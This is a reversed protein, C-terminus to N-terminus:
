PVIFLGALCMENQTGWGPTVPDTLGRTDYDCTVRLKDGPGLVIPRDYFYYLQWGFDWRAVDGVCQDGTEEVLDARWTRGREHMHPFIGHIEVQDVGLDPLLWDALDATWTYKASAQGPEIAAPEGTFLTDIFLDLLMFFGEREVSGAIQLRVQSRDSEGTHDADGDHHHLNYHMQIVVRDDARLRVGTGEPYAVAGMGPAWTIPIQAVAVGEGAASYCPWGDRDPSDADLMEIVEGNTMGNGLHSPAALDVPMALVHHVLAPNGPTVDYGTLFVDKDFGPDVLFCRYEDHTSIPGGQAAPVFEPTHLDVGEDLRPPAAAVLDDRVTGEPAGAEAWKSITEIQEDTLARSGSFEGCSGDSTMLWPPMTRGAVAAASADAWASADAYTDLRFPAVGGESHCGVCSEFYIPAVHQWYSTEPEAPVEDEKCASLLALSTLSLLYARHM